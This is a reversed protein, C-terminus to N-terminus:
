RLIRVVALATVALAGYKLWDPSERWLDGADPVIIELQEGATDAQDALSRAVEAQGPEISEIDDAIQRLLQATLQDAEACSTGPTFESAWYAALAGGQDVGPRSDWCARIAPGALLDLDAVARALKDRDAGGHESMADQLAFNLTLIQEYYSM